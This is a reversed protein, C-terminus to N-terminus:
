YSLTVGVSILNRYFEADEDSSFRQSFRYSSTLVAHEALRYGFTLGAILTKDTRDLDSLRAVNLGLTSSLASRSGLSLSHGLTASAATRKRADEGDQISLDLSRRASLDLTTGNGPSWTLAATGTASDENERDPDDFSVFAYGLSARTTVTRSARYGAGFQFGVREADRSEGDDAVDQDFNSYRYSPGMSLTLNDSWALRLRGSLGYATSDRDDFDDGELDRRSVTADVGFGLKEGSADYGIGANILHIPTDGDDDEADVSEDDEVDRSYTLSANIKRTRSLDIRGDAGVQWDFFDDGNNNLATGTSAGAELGIRHRAYTSEARISPSFTLFVDEDRDTDDAEVNDDYLMGLSAQGGLAFDGLRLRSPQQLSPPVSGGGFYGRQNVEPSATPLLPDSPAEQDDDAAVPTAALISTTLLVALLQPLPPSRDPTM